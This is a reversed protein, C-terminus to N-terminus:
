LANQYWCLGTPQRFSAASLSGDNNGEQTSGAFTTVKCDKDMARICNNLTDAIYLTGAGDVALGRPSNFAANTSVADTYGSKASGALTTVKNGAIYRICNNGSDSVAYGELFPAVDWPANFQASQLDGDVYGGVPSGYIDSPNVAGLKDFSGDETLSLVVNQKTDAILVTSGKAYIGTPSMPTTVASAGGTLLAATLLLALLKKM